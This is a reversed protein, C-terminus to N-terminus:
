IEKCEIGSNNLWEAVIHRHCFKDPIEFCLMCVDNHESMEFLANAINKPDVANLVTIYYKETYWKKSEDSELNDKFKDHWEQWWAKKPALKSCKFSKLNLKKDYEVFWDPAYGSIICFRVNPKKGLVGNVNHYYSTYIM